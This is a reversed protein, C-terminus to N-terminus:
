LRPDVSFEIETASQAVEAFKPHGPNLLYNNEQPIIVSPIALALNSNADLWVDGIEATSSPAPEARWDSPLRNSALTEIGDSPLGVEFMAYSQLLRYDNLHVMIELLALSQSAALYIAPKGRSNWRGGYRRAGEGDFASAKWKRKVLRFGSVSSM